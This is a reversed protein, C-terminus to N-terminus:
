QLASITSTILERAKAGYVALGALTAFTQAYTPIERPTTIRLLRCVVGDNCQRVVQRGHCEQSFYATVLLMIPRMTVSAQSETENM